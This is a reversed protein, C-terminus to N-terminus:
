FYEEGKATKRLRVEMLVEGDPHDVGIGQHDLRIDIEPQGEVLKMELYVMMMAAFARSKYAIFRRGPCLHAGGGFARVHSSLPTNGTKSKANPNAFRDYIYTEPEDFISPDYHMAQPSAMIRTGKEIMYKVKKTEKPNILFDETVVRTNFVGMYRRLTEQFASHLLTMEDLEDLTFFERGSERKSAIERVQNCCAQYADGDKLINYFTWFVAPISNGVIAFVVGLNGKAFTQRPFKAEKHNAIREHFLPSCRDEFEKSQLVDLIEKRAKRAKSTLFSPAGAFLLAIGEEWQNFNHLMQNKMLINSMLPGLSAFFIAQRVFDFISVRRWDSQGLEEM